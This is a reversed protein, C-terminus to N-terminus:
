GAKEELPPAMAEACGPHGCNCSLETLDGADHCYASCYSEGAPAYCNCAPHQCKKNEAM